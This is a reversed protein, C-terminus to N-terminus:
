REDAGVTLSEFPNVVGADFRVDAGGVFANDAEALTAADGREPFRCQAGHLLFGSRGFRRLQGQERRRGISRWRRWGRRIGVCDGDLRRRKRGRGGRRGGCRREIGLRVTGRLDGGWRVRLGGSDEGERRRILGGEWSDVAALVRANFDAVGGADAMGLTAIVDDDAFVHGFAAQAELAVFVIIRLGEDVDGDGVFGALRGDEDGGLDDKDFLEALLLEVAVADGVELGGFM